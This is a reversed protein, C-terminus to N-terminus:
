PRVCDLLKCLAPVNYTVADFSGRHSHISQIPDDAKLRCTLFEPHRGSEVHVFGKCGAESDIKWVAPAFGYAESNMLCFGSIEAVKRNMRTLLFYGGLGDGVFVCLKNEKRRICVTDDNKERGGQESLYATSIRM